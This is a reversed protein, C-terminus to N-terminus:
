PKNEIVLKRKVFNYVEDALQIAEKMEDTSIESKDVYRVTTSYINLVACHTFLNSFDNDILQCDSNLKELNHIFGYEVGRYNLFAKLAKEACQQCHYCVGEIYVEDATTAHKALDLDQLAIRMLGAYNERIPM